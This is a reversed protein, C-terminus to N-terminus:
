DCWIRKGRKHWKTSPKQARQVKIRHVWLLVHKSPADKIGKLTAVEKLIENIMGDDNFGSIFQEMLLRNHKKYQCKAVKTGLWGMWEQASENGKRHLNQVQLSIVIRNHQLKFKSCLVTFLGKTTKNKKEEEEM